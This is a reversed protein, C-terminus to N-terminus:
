IHDKGAGTENRGDDRRVPSLIKKKFRKEKAAGPVNDGGEQSVPHIQLIQDHTGISHGRGGLKHHTQANGKFVFYVLFLCLSPGRGGLEHHTQAHAHTHIHTYTHICV